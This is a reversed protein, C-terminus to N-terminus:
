CAASRTWSWTSPSTTRRSSAWGSSGSTSWASGPPTTPRRTSRSPRAASPFSGAATSPRLSAAARGADARHGAGRARRAALGGPRAPDSRGERGACRRELRVFSVLDGTGLGRVAFSEQRYRNGAADVYQTELIPLFGDALRPAALRSLCSGYRERGDRRRLGECEAGQRDALPDRQRRRRPAGGHARRPRGVAPRVAPLLGRVDDPVQDELARLAAAQAPAAGLRLDAREPPRDAREGVRGAECRARPPRQRRVRPERASARLSPGKATSPPAASGAIVLVALVALALPFRM